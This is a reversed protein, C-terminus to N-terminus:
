VNAPVLEWCNSLANWTLLCGDCKRKLVLCVKNDIACESLLRSSSEKVRIGNIEWVGYGRPLIIGPLNFLDSVVANVAVNVTIKIMKQKLLKNLVNFMIDVTM